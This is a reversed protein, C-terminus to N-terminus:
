GGPLRRAAYRNAAVGYPVCSYFFRGFASKRVGDIENEILQRCGVVTL